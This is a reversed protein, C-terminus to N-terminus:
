SKVSGFSKIDFLTQHVLQSLGLFFFDWDKDAVSFFSFMEVNQYFYFELIEKHVEIFV